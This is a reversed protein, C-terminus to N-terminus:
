RRLGGARDAADDRHGKSTRRLTRRVGTCLAKMDSLRKRHSRFRHMNPSEAPPYIPEAVWKQNSYLFGLVKEGERAHAFRRGSVVMGVLMKRTLEM